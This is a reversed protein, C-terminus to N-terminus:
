RTDGEPALDTLATVTRLRKVGDAAARRAADASGGVLEAVDQYPLGGLYHYAIVMRQKDPLAAVAAWLDPQVAEPDGTRSVADPPAAV